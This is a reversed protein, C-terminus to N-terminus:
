PLRSEAEALMTAVQGVLRSNKRARSEYLQALAPQLGIAQELKRVNRMEDGGQKIITMARLCDLWVNSDSTAVQFAVKAGFAKELWNAIEPRQSQFRDFRVVDLIPLCKAGAYDYFQEADSERIDGGAFRGLISEFRTQEASSLSGVVMTAIRTRRQDDSEGLSAAPGRPTAREAANEEESQAAAAWKIADTHDQFWALDKRLADSESKVAALQQQTASLQERVRTLEASLQSAPDVGDGCGAMLVLGCFVLSPTKMFEAGLM